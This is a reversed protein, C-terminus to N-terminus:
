SLDAPLDALQLLNKGEKMMNDIEEKTTSLKANFAKSVYDLAIIKKDAHKALPKLEDRDGLKPGQGLKELVANSPGIALILYDDRVGLNVSLTLQKLRDKVKDFEGPQDELRDLRLENWPFQKFDLALNYFDGGGIKVKKYTFKVEKSQKIAQKLVADLRKLQADARSTNGLKFGIVLEPIAIQESKEALAELIARQMERDDPAGGLAAQQAVIAGAYVSAFVDIVLDVSGVFSNGGYVFFEHSLMDGALEVLQQNEPDKAFARYQELPSGPKALEDEMKKIFLKYAPLEKLRGVAKSNLLAELQERNHLSVTYFAADAPIWKLSAPEAGATPMALVVALLCALAFRRSLPTLM